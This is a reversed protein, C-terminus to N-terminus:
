ARSSLPSTVFASAVASYARLKVHPTATSAACTYQAWAPRSAGSLKLSPIPRALRSPVPALWVNIGVESVRPIATSAEVCAAGGDRMEIPSALIASPLAPCLANWNVTVSSLGCDDGTVTSKAVASSV